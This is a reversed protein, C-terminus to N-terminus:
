RTEIEVIVETLHSAGPHKRRCQTQPCWRNCRGYDVTDMCLSEDALCLQGQFGWRDDGLSTFPDRAHGSVYVNRSNYAASLLTQQAGMIMGAAHQVSEEPMSVLYRVSKSGSSCEQVVDTVTPFSRLFTMLIGLVWNVEGARPDYRGARLRLATPPSPPPPVDDSDIRSSPSCDGCL